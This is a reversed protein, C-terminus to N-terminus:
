KIGQNMLYSYILNAGLIPTDKIKNLITYIYNWAYGLKGSLSQWTHMAYDIPRTVRVM